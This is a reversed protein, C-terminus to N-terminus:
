RCLVQGATTLACADTRGVGVDVVDTRGFPDQGLPEGGPKRPTIEPKPGTGTRGNETLAWVGGSSLLVYTGYQGMEIQAADRVGELATPRVCALNWTQSILGPDKDQVAVTHVGGCGAAGDTDYGWCWAIGNKRWACTREGVRVGAVGSVGALQV